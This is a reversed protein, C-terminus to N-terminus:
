DFVALVIPLSLARDVALVFLARSHCAGFPIMITSDSSHIYLKGQVHSASTAVVSCLLVACSIIVITRGLMRLMSINFIPGSYV